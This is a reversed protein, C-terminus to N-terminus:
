ESSLLNTCLVQRCVLKFSCVPFYPVNLMKSYAHTKWFLYDHQQSIWDGLLTLINTHFETMQHWACSQNSHINCPFLVDTYKMQTKKCTPHYLLRLQMQDKPSTIRNMVVTAEKYPICSKLNKQSTNQRRSYLAMYDASPCGTNQHFMNGSDLCSARGAEHHNRAQSIRWSPLLFNCTRESYWNVTLLSCLTIDQSISMKTTTTIIIMIKTHLYTETDSIESANLSLFSFQQSKYRHADRYQM